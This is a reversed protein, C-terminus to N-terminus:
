KNKSKSKSINRELKGISRKINSLNKIINNKPLNEIKLNNIKDILKDKKVKKNTNLKKSSIKKILPIVYRTEMIQKGNKNYRGMWKQVPANLKNTAEFVHEKVEDGTLKDYEILTFRVTKNTKGELQMSRLIASAVKKAAVGATLGHFTGRKDKQEIHKKNKRSYKYVILEDKLRFKKENQKRLKKKQNNM